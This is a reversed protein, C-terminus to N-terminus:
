ENQVDASCCRPLFFSVFSRFISNNQHRNQKTPENEMVDLLRRAQVLDSNRTVDPFPNSVFTRLLKRLDMEYMTFMTNSFELVSERDYGHICVKMYVWSNVFPGDTTQQPQQPQSSSIGDATHVSYFVSDMCALMLQKSNSGTLRLIGLLGRTNEIPFMMEMAFGMLEQSITFVKQYRSRSGTRALYRQVSWNISLNMFGRSRSLIYKYQGGVSDNFVHKETSSEVEQLFKQPNNVVSTTYQVWKKPIREIYM